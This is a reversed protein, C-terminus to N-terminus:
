YYELGLKASILANKQMLSSSLSQQRSGRLRLEQYGSAKVNGAKGSKAPIARALHRNWGIV